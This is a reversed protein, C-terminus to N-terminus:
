RYGDGAMEFVVDLGGFVNILEAVAANRSRISGDAMRRPFRISYYFETIGYM